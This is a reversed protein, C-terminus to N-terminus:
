ERARDADRARDPAQRQLRQLVLSLLHALRCPEDGRLETVVLLLRGADGSQARVTRGRGPERRCPMHSNAQPAPCHRRLALPRVGCPPRTANAEDTAEQWDGLSM